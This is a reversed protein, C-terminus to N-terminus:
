NRIESRNMEEEVAAMISADVPLDGGPGDARGKERLHSVILIVLILGVALGFGPLVWAALDFGKAPPAALVKVGYRRTLDQLIAPEGKGQRIDKLIVGTIEARSECQSLLHPCHNLAMTCGCLCDVQNGVKELSTKPPAAPASCPLITFVMLALLAILRRSCGEWHVKVISERGAPNALPICSADSTDQGQHNKVIMIKVLGRV